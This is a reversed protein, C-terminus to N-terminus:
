REKAAARLREYLAEYRAVVAGASFLEEARQRCASRDLGGIKHVAASGEEISNILFGDIGQRVIEPLAGTPCSIV